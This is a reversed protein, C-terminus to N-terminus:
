AVNKEEVMLEANVSLIKESGRKTFEVQVVCPGSILVDNVMPISIGNSNLVLGSDIQGEVTITWNGRSLRVVPTSTVLRPCAGVLLPLRM